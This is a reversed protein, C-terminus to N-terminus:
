SRGDQSLFKALPEWYNAKWGANLHTADADPFGSHEFRLTTGNGLSALEFKVMSFVGPKWDSDRWAQVLRTDPVLEIHRGTIVGGFLTFSGGAVPSISTPAAGASLGSQMAESLMTVKHFQAADTLASYVRHPSAKFTLRHRIAASSHTIEDDSAAFADFSRMALLGFAFAGSRIMQRRDSSASLLNRREHQTM